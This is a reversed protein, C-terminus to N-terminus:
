FVCLRGLIEAELVIGRFTDVQPAEVFFNPWPNSSYPPSGDIKAGGCRIIRASRYKREEKRKEKKESNMLVDPWDKLTM